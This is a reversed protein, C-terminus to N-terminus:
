LAGCAGPALGYCYADDRGGFEAGAQSHTAPSHGGTGYEAGADSGKVDMAASTSSCSSATESVAAMRRGAPPGPDAGSFSSHSATTSGGGRRPWAPEPLFADSGLPCPRGSARRRHPVM